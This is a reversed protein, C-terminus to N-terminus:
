QMQGYFSSRCDWVRLKGVSFYLGATLVAVLAVMVLLEVLIGGKKRKMDWGGEQRFSCREM